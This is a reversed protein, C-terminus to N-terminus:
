PAGIKKREGSIALILFRGDQGRQANFCAVTSPLWRAFAARDAAAPAFM